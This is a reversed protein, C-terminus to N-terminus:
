ITKSEEKIEYSKGTKIFDLFLDESIPKSFYYGQAIDCDLDRLWKAQEYTEVGEAVIKMDLRKSLTIVEDVVITTREDTDKQEFFAKDMKLIDANISCLRNLSSVGSGFDDISVIFGLKKLQRIKSLFNEESGLIATETIELDIQSPKVDYEDLIKMLQSILTEELVTIASLNVSIIPVEVKDSHENIYRCVDRFVYMDLTAIFGNREFVEIFDTPYIIESGSPIWRVLAEAGVISLTKFDVKPQYFVKFEKEKIGQEMKFTIHLNSTFKKKMKKDFVIFTTEHSSKGKMRAFDAYAFLDSITQECNDVVVSGYSLTANYRDGLISKIAPVIYTKHLGEISPGEGAKRLIYFQEATKRAHVASTEKFVGELARAIEIIVATGQEMSYYSNITRFYDIDFSILEYVNADAKSLFENVVEYYYSMSMLGTLRDTRYAQIQFDKHEERVKNNYSLFILALAVGVAFLYVWYESLFSRLTKRPYYTSTHKNLIAEYERETLTDLMVNFIPVYDAAIKRSISMHFGLNFDTGFLYNEGEEFYADVYTSGASTYVAMDIQGAKYAEIMKEFSNFFVLENQQFVEAFSDYNLFLYEPFGIRPTKKIIEFPNYNDKALKSSVTAVMAISYYSETPVYHEIKYEANGLLSVVVDFDSHSSIDTGLAYPAYEVEFKYKRSLTDILEILAGSANGDASTYTFPQHNDVYGVLLPRERLTEVEQRTLERHALNIAESNYKTVLENYFFGEEAQIKSYARNIENMINENDPLSVLYSFSNSLNLATFFNNASQNETFTLYFDAELNTYNQFTDIVYTVSIGNDELYKDLHENSPNGEYTAVTKGDISEPDDYYIDKLGKTALSAIVTNFPRESYLFDKEREPTKLYLGALDVEKDRLAELGDRELEVFEFRINCVTEIKKLLEYGIGKNGPNDVDYILGANLQYGVRIVGENQSYLNIHSFLTLMAVSFLALLNKKFLIM